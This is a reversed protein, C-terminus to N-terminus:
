RTGFVVITKGHATLRGATELDKLARGAMERSCGSMKALEQRSAKIQMGQPHTLAEPQQSLELVSRMVRETVDVFALGSAKRTVSLLRKSIQSGISYLIKPSDAALEGSLLQLLKEHKIEAIESAVRTKLAVHRQHSPFFLGVEGLFEGPSIHNVVLEKGDMEDSVITLSGSIVFYLTDARDGPVFVEKRAPYSKKEFYSLLRNLTPKDLVFSLQGPTQKLHFDLNANM